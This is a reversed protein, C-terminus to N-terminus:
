VVFRVRGVVVGRGVVVRSQELVQECKKQVFFRAQLSALEDLGNEQVHGHEIQVPYAVNVVNKVRNVVIAERTKALDESDSEGIQVQTVLLVPRIRLFLLLQEVKLLLLRVILIAM